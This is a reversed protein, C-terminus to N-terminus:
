DTIRVQSRLPMLELEGRYREITGTIQMRAGNKISGTDMGGLELEEAVDEWIVVKIRGTGDDLDFFMHGNEHEYLDKVEGEVNVISGVLNGTVEGIKVHVSSINIVVIYLAIIGIISGILSVKM